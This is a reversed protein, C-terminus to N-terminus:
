KSKKKLEETIRSLEKINSTLPNLIRQFVQELAKIESGVDVINKDYTQIRGLVAKQLNEYKNQLRIVEQKISSLEIRVREKWLAIDGFSEMFSRWKEEVVSEVLEEIEDIATPTYNMQQLPQQPMVQQTTQQPSSQGPIPPTYLISPQLDENQDLSDQPYQQAPYQSPVPTDDEMITKTQNEINSEDMKEKEEGKM